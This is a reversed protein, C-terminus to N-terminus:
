RADVAEKLVRYTERAARSWAFEPLRSTGAAVLRQRKNTDGELQVLSDALAAPDDPAVRKAARGLTERFIPLDSVVSPTGCALAELPPFGFGEYWSVLVLSEAEAYLAPMDEDSVYGLSRVGDPVTLDETGRGVLLLEAQLGKTRALQFGAFLTALNKRPEGAGVYLLYARPLRYRKRVRNRAAAPIPKRYIPEIGPHIVEIRTDPIAYEQKLEDKTQESVAILKTARRATARPRVARHWARARADYWDPHTEFSLDHVTLVLPVDASLSLFGFGPSFWVDVGSVARDLRPSRTLALRANTLQNSQKIHHLTVNKRRLEPPLVYEQRGTQLLHWQDRPHSAALEALLARTYHPIGGRSMVLLSRIDVGINV